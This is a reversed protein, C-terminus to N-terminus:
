HSGPDEVDRPAVPWATVPSCPKSPQSRIGGPSALHPGPQHKRSSGWGALVTWPKIGRSSCKPDTVVSVTIMLQLWPSPWCSLPAPGLTAGVEEEHGLPRRGPLLRGQPTLDRCGRQKRVRSAGSGLGELFFPLARPLEQTVWTTTEAGPGRNGDSPFRLPHPSRGSSRGRSFWTSPRAQLDEFFRSQSRLCGGRGWPRNGSSPLPGYGLDVRFASDWTRKRGLLKPNELSDRPRVPSSDYPGSGTQHPDSCVAPSPQEGPARPWSLSGLWCESGRGVPSRVWLQFPPPEAVAGALTVECM